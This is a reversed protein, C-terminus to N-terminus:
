GFRVVETQVEVSRVSRFSGGMWGVCGACVNELGVTPACRGQGAVTVVPAEWCGLAAGRLGALVLAPHRAGM